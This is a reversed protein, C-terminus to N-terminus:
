KTKKLLFAFFFDIFSKILYLLILIAGVWLFTSIDLQKSFKVGFIETIPVETFEKKPLEEM